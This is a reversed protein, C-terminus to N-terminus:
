DKFAAIRGKDDYLPIFDGNPFVVGEVVKYVKIVEIEDEGKRFSDRCVARAYTKKGCKLDKVYTILKM